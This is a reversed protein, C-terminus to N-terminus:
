VALIILTIVTLVLVILGIRIWMRDIYDSIYENEKEEEIVTEGM